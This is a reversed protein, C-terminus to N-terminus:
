DYSGFTDKYGIIRASSVKYGGTAKRFKVHYTAGGKSDFYAYMGKKNQEDVYNVEDIQFLRTIQAISYITEKDDLNLNTATLRQQTAM